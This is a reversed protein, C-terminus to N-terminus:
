GAYVDDASSEGEVGKAHEPLTPLEKRDFGPAVWFVEPTPKYGSFYTRNETRGNMYHIVVTSHVDMGRTGKQKLFSKGPQMFSKETIRRLYPEVNSVGYKYEVRDVESGGLIEVRLTGPQPTFAHVVVAYSYPNKIKLDVAPYHVTADLGLQTYDSPRTHSKRQVIELGGYIAAGHLTGSVQCTGGGIGVTLEDGVIEPAEHFGADRTRPGVRENFGVTAGPRIVLGNLKSAALEVNKSRGVKFVAYKTEFSSLVKTVDIDYLDFTTVSAPRVRMSLDLEIVGDSRAIRGINEALQRATEQADLEAGPVDDIKLHRELDISADVPARRVEDAWRAVFAAATTEDLSFGMPVDIEGLRARKAERMRLLVTGRHAIELAVRVTSRVDVAGGLDGLTAEFRKSEHKLVVRRERLAQQRRELWGSLSVDPPVVQGEVKLGQTVPSSPLYPRVAWLGGLGIAVGASVSLLVSTGRKM